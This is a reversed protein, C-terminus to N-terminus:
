KMGAQKFREKIDLANLKVALEVPINEGSDEFSWRRINQYTNGRIVKRRSVPIRHSVWDNIRRVRYKVIEAVGNNIEPAYEVKSM